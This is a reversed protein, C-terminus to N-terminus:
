SFSTLIEAEREPLLTQVAEPVTYPPVSHHWNLLDRITETCSRFTLGKRIASSVDALMMGGMEEDGEPIWLPLDKWPQVDFELLSADPIWTTTITSGTANICADILNQMTFKTAPGTANYTGTINQECCHVVWTALDRVDIFQIPRDPSGPALVEGGREIRVPWYTFRGTWDFPGVILGPRIITSRDGYVERVREESRAKAPGYGEDGEAIRANENYSQGQPYSAFVSITSIYIYQPQCPALVEALLELDAPQYGCTDIIVDFTRGRLAEVNSLRDGILRECEPFLDAGHKGRNFLTISHGCRLGEEVIHRGLFITGGIILINLGCADSKKKLM